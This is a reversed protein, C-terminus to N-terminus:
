TAHAEYLRFAIPYEYEGPAVAFRALHREVLVEAEAERGAPVGM